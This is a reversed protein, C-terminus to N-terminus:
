QATLSGSFWQGNAFDILYGYTQGSTINGSGYFYLTLATASGAALIPTNVSLINCAGGNGPTCYVATASEGFGTVTLGFSSISTKEGPNNLVISVYPSGTANAAGPSSKMIGAFLNGSELTITTGATSSGQSSTTSQTTQVKSIQSSTTSGTTLSQSVERSTTSTTAYMTQSNLTTRTTSQVTQAQSTPSVVNNSPKLSNQGLYFAVGALSILCAVVLVVLSTGIARRASPRFM